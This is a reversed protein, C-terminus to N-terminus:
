RNKKMLPMIYILKEINIEDKLKGVNNDNNFQNHMHTIKIYPTIYAM